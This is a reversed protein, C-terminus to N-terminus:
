RDDGGSKDFISGDSIRKTLKAINGELASQYSSAFRNVLLHHAVITYQGAATILREEELAREDRRKLYTDGPMEGSKPRALGHAASTLEGLYAPFLFMGAANREIYEHGEPNNRGTAISASQKLRIAGLGPEISASYRLGCLSLLNVLYWAVDGFEKLHRNLATATVEGPNNLPGNDVGFLALSGWRNYGPEIKDQDWIVEHAEEDLSTLIYALPQKGKITTGGEDRAAMATAEAQYDDLFDWNNPLTEAIRLQQDFLLPDKQIETM